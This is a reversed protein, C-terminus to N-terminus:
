TPALRLYSVGAIDSLVMAAMGPLPIDFVHLGLPLSGALGAIRDASCNGESYVHAVEVM